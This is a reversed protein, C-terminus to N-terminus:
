ENLAKLKVEATIRISEQSLISCLETQIQPEKFWVSRAYMYNKLEGFVENDSIDWGYYARKFENWFELARPWSLHYLFDFSYDSGYHTAIYFMALDHNPHGYCVDGLDIFYDKTGDTIINGFHLDGHLLTAREEAAITELAERVAKKYKDDLVTNSELLTRYKDLAGTFHFKGELHRTIEELKKGHLEKVMVAMRCALEPISEPREGALRCFSKKGMIRQSIIALHNEFRTVEVVQPVNVGCRLLAMTTAVEMKMREGLSPEDTASSESREVNYVKLILEPHSESTYSDGEMGAGSLVWDNIEM